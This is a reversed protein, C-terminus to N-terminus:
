IRILYSKLMQKDDFPYKVGKIEQYKEHGKGAVLIISGTNAMMCAMKIAQERDEVVSYKSSMEIPVGDTMDRIIARPDEDRPNDSTFIVKHSYSVALRAIIPRKARDRNGGCGIVTIIEQQAQKIAHIQQLIKEVADPTHAYDVVGIVQRSQERFWDFRGEVSTLSSLATLVQDEDAGLELAAAYVALLNAANFEGVLQSHWERRNFVLHLGEFDSHLIKATYDAVNRLAYTKIRAMCNQVMVLGNRDDANTLAFADKPLQDFFMKKALLYSKFDGHYDLHDHTLNTFIGGKYKLGHIRRQHIAHSSVEMFVHSCNSEVMQSLLAYLGVIDPTTHTAEISKAGVKNEVTSILGCTFGLKVYLQYLLSAVSTKGNTGTVGILTIDHLQQDYFQHLMDSLVSILDDSQVYCVKPHLHAPLKECLVVEAGADIADAMYNHGDDRTGKKAIFVQYQRVLRSDFCFGEVEKNAYNVIRYPRSRPLIEFLRKM